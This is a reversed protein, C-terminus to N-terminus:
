PTCLFIELEIQRFRQWDHHRRYLESLYQRRSSNKKKLQFAKKMIKTNKETIKNM